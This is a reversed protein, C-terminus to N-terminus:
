FETFIDCEETGRFCFSLECVFYAFDCFFDEDGLHMPDAVDCDGFEDLVCPFFFKGEITIEFAIEFLLWFIALM